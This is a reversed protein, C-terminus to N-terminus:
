RSPRASEVDGVVVVRRGEGTDVILAGGPDVDVARGTVVDADTMIEVDAGLTASCARYRPWFDASSADTAVLREVIAAALGVRDPPDGLEALAVTLRDPVRVDLEDPRVNLGIGAVVWARTGRITSQALVGALKAQGVAREVVLDNPWKLRVDAFGLAQVAECAALGLAAGALALNPEHADHRRVMSMLLAAGPATTWTRDRRGRGATQHDAICVLGDADVGSTAALADANTSGTESVWRFPGIHHGAFHEALAQARAGPPDSEDATLLIPVKPPM